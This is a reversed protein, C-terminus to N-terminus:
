DGFSHSWHGQSSSSNAETSNAAVFIHQNSRVSWSGPPAGVTLASQLYQMNDAYNRNENFTNYQGPPPKIATLIIKPDAPRYPCARPSTGSLLCHCPRDRAMPCGVPRRIQNVNAGAYAMEMEYKDMKMHDDTKTSMSQSMLESSTYNRKQPTKPTPPTMKSKGDKGKSANGKTKPKTM